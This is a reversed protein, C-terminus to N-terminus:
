DKVCRVSLGLAKNHTDRYVGAESSSLGRRWANGGAENSSWFNTFTGQHIQRGTADRYGATLVNFKSVLKMQTGVQKSANTDGWWSLVDTAGTDTNGDDNGFRWGTNTPNAPVNGNDSVVGELDQV